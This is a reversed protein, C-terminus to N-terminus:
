LYVCYERKHVKLTYKRLTKEYFQYLADPM